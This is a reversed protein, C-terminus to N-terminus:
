ELIDTIDHLGTIKSVVIVADGAQIMDYGRPIIVEGNRVIAAVLVNKRFKLKSLPTGVIKSQHRIIFESAEAQGRCINYLAEMNSGSTGKLSRIYRLIMDSVINEPCIVTDLDLKKIVDGYDVRKIMSIIKGKAKSQAYLSLLINEEDSDALALFAGVRGIGEEAMLEQNLADGHIVNVYPFAECLEDCKTKDNEIVKVNVKAKKLLSCLYHTIEGSGVVMASKVSNTKYGMNKFLDQAGELSAIISVIDRAEFVFDGKAIYAREDREITAFLVDSKYKIMVDKVSMGIIPSNEPLRFKVLEVLGKGFSEIGLASPFRLIRAIEEAAEYEPNIVMALGIENKLFDVEASYEHSRVRAIVKCDSSKRAVICCLINLEDSNTVAILLDAEQVNAETLTTHSAGNGVIGLADIKDTLAKVNDYVTDIVTINNGTSILQEALTQGVQGCGVIIVNMQGGNIDRTRRASSHSPKM